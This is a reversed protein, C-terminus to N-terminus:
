WCRSARRTWRASDRRATSRPPHRVPRPGLAVLSLLVGALVPPSGLWSLARLGLPYLPFFATRSATFHGLDPRYGYHAIVLYWASDWRAAPRRSCTASGASAARSARRTSPKARRGSASRWCPGSAPRGCWCGRAGCRGGATACRPWGSRTPACRRRAVAGLASRRARGRSRRGDGRGGAARAGPPHRSRPQTPNMQTPGLRSIPPRSTRLLARVARYGRCQGSTGVLEVAGAGAGRCRRCM